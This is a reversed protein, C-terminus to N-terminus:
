YLTHNTSRCVLTFACGSRGTLSSPLQQPFVIVNAAMDNLCRSNIPLLRHYAESPRPQYQGTENRGVGM